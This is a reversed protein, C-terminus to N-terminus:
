EESLWNDHRERQVQAHNVYDQEREQCAVVENESRISDILKLLPLFSQAENSEVDAEQKCHGATWPDVM